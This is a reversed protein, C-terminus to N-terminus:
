NRLKQLYLFVLFLFHIFLCKGAVSFKLSLKDSSQDFYQNFRLLLEFPQGRRVVLSFDAERMCAYSGTRHMAGNQRIRYDIWLVSLREMMEESDSDGIFFLFFCLRM